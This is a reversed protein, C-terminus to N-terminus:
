VVVLMLLEFLVQGREGGAAGRAATLGPVLRGARV